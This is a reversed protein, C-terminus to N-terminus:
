SFGRIEALHYIDVSNFNILRLLTMTKGGSVLKIKKKENFRDRLKSMFRFVITDEVALSWWRDSQIEAQSSQGAPRLGSAELSSYWVPLTEIVQDQPVLSQSGPQLVQFEGKHRFKAAEILFNLKM